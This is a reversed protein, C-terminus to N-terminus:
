GRSPDDPEADALAARIKGQAEAMLAELQDLRAHLAVGAAPPVAGTACLRQLLTRQSGLYADSAEIMRDVDGDAM